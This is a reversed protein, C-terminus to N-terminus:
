DTCLLVILVIVGIPFLFILLLVCLVIEGGSLEHRYHEHRYGARQNALEPDEARKLDEFIQEPYVEAIKSSTTARAVPTPDEARALTAPFLMAGALALQFLRRGLRTKMSLREGDDFCASVWLRRDPGTDLHAYRRKGDPVRRNM